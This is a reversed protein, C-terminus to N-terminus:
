VVGSSKMESFYHYYSVVYTTISKDDPVHVEVDVDTTTYLVSKYVFLVCVYIYFWVCFAFM